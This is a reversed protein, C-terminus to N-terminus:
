ATVPLSGTTSRAEHERLTTLIARGRESADLQRMQEGPGLRRFWVVERAPVGALLLNIPSFPSRPTSTIQQM